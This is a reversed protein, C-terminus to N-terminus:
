KNKAYVVAYDLAQANSNLVQWNIASNSQPIPSAPSWVVGGFPALSFKYITGAANSDSLSVVTAVNGESTIVLSIIDNFVGAGGAAILTTAANNASSLTATGVLDRPTNVVVVQRGAKDAMGAVLNGDSVATPYATTGRYGAYEANAPVAAATAGQPFNSVNSNGSSITVAQASAFTIPDATVLLKNTLQPQDTAIVVRLTGASKTGSNADIATGALLNLNVTANAQITANSNGSSITVPQATTGVPDIRLPNALTGGEVSGGNASARLNVGLMFQTGVGTDLDFGVAGQTNGGVNIGMYDAQAPVAAGTNGAAPNGAAGAVVNVKLNRNSDMALIDLQNNATAVGPNVAAMIPTGVSTTATFGAGDTSSTGGSGGGAGLNVYLYGNADVLLPTPIGTSNNKALVLPSSGMMSGM